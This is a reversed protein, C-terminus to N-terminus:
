AHRLAETWKGWSHSHPYLIGIEDIANDEEYSQASTSGVKFHIHGCKSCTWKCDLVRPEKCIWCPGIVQEPPGDLYSHKGIFCRVSKRM